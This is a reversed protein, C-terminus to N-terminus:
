NANFLSDVQQQDPADRVLQPGDALPSAHPQVPIGSPGYARASEDLRKLRSELSALNKLVKQIRQGGVDQFVCAEYIRTVLADMKERAEGAPMGIAAIRGIETATDLISTAAEESSVLVDNLQAAADHVKGHEVIDAAENKIEHFCECIEEIQRYLEAPLITKYAQQNDLM